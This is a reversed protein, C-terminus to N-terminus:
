THNLNTKVVPSTHYRELKKEYYTLHKKKKKEKRPESRELRMSLHELKDAVFQKKGKRYM